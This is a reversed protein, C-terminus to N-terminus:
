FTIRRYRGLIAMTEPQFVYDKQFVTSQRRMTEGDRSAVNEFDKQHQSMFRVEIECARELDPYAEALSQRTIATITATPSQLKNADYLSAELTAFSLVDGISFIGYFNEVEFAGETAVRVIGVATQAANICYWGVLPTGSFTTVFTSRVADYALGGLSVVQLGGRAPYVPVNLVLSMGDIGIRYDQSDLTYDSTSDYRGLSDAKVSTISIIPLGQPVYVVQRPSTDFSETRSTIIFKRQCYSELLQSVSMQWTLLKSRNRMWDNGSGAGAAIPLGTYASLKQISSLLM